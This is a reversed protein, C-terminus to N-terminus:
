SRQYWSKQSPLSRSYGMGSAAVGFEKIRCLGGEKPGAHGWVCIGALADLGRGKREFALDMVGVRRANAPPYVMRM